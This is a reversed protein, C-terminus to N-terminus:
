KINRRPLVVKNVLPMLEPLLEEPPRLSPLQQPASTERQAKKDADLPKLIRTVLSFSIRDSYPTPAGAGCNQENSIKL